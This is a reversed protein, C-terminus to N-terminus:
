PTARPKKPLRTIMKDANAQRPDPPYVDCELYIKTNSFIVTAATIGAARWPNYYRGETTAEAVRVVLLFGGPLSSSRGVLNRPSPPTPNLCRGGESMMGIDVIIKAPFRTSLATIKLWGRRPWGVTYRWPNFDRVLQPMWKRYMVSLAPLSRTATRAKRPGTKRTNKM